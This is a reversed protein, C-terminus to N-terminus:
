EWRLLVAYSQIDAISTNFAGSSSSGKFTAYTHPKGYADTVSFTNSGVGLSPESVDGQMCHMFCTLPNGLYGVLPFTCLASIYTGNQLATATGSNTYPQCVSCTYGGGVTNWSGNVPGYGGGALVSIQFVPNTGASSGWALVVTYYDATYAGSSDMSREICIMWTKLTPVVGTVSDCRFMLMASCAGTYPNGLGGSACGSFDCEYQNTADATTGNSGVVMTPTPQLINGAGDSGTGFTMRIGPQGASSNNSGYEIKFFIPCSSQLSDSARWVEYGQYTNSALPSTVTSWNVQGTDSTQTYGLGSWASNM